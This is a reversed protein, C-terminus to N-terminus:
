IGKMRMGDSKPISPEMEMVVVSVLLLDRTTMMAEFDRGWAIRCLLLNEVFSGLIRGPAASSPGALSISVLDSSSAGASYRRSSSSCLAVSARAVVAAM